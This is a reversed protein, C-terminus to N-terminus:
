LERRPSHDIKCLLVVKAPVFRTEPLKLCFLRIKTTLHEPFCFRSEGVTHEM